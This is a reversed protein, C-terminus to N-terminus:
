WRKKRKYLSKIYYNLVFLVIGLPIMSLCLIVFPWFWLHWFGGRIAKSHNEKDFYVTVDNSWERMNSSYDAHLTYSHNSSDYYTIVPSYMKTSGNGDSDKSWSEEYGTIRAETKVGDSVLIIHSYFKNVSYYIGGVGMGLFLLIFVVYFFVIWFGDNNGQKNKIKM